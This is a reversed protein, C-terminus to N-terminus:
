AYKAKSNDSIPKNTEIVKLKLNGGVGFSHATHLTAFM